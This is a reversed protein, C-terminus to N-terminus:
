RAAPRTRSARPGAAAPGAPRGRAPCRPSGPPATTASATAAQTRHVSSTPTKTSPGRAARPQRLDREQQHRAAAGDADREGAPPATAAAAPPARPAASARGAATTPRPPRRSRRRRARCRPASWWRGPAAAPATRATGAAAAPRPPTAPPTRRHALGAAGVPVRDAGVPLQVVRGAPVEVPGGVGEHHADASGGPRACPGPPPAATSPGPRGGSGHPVTLARPGTSEHPEGDARVHSGPPSVRM